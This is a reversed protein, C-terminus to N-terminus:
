TMFSYRRRADSPGSFRIKRIECFFDFIKECFYKCNDAIRAIIAMIQSYTNAM